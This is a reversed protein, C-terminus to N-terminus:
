RSLWWLCVDHPLTKFVTREFRGALLTRSSAPKRAVSSRRRSRRVESLMNGVYVPAGIRPESVSLRLQRRSERM